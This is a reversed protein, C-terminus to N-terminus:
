THVENEDDLVDMEAARKVAHKLIMTDEAKQQEKLMKRSLIQQNRSAVCAEWDAKRQAEQAAFNDETKKELEAVDKSLKLDESKKISALHQATREIIKNVMAQKEAAKKEEFSKRDADIRQKEKAYAILKDDMEEDLQRNRAKIAKQEENMLMYEYALDKAAKRRAEEAAAMDSKTQKALARVREGEAIEALRERRAREKAQSLQFDQSAKREQMKRRVEEKEAATRKDSSAMLQNEMELWEAEQQKLLEKEAKKMRLQVDREAMVSSLLLSQHFGMVRDNGAYLTANAHDIIQRRESERAAVEQDDIIQQRREKAALREVRDIQKKERLAEITNGWAMARERSRERLEHLRKEQPNERKVPGSAIHAIYSFDNLNLVTANPPLGGIAPMTVPQSRSMPPTANRAVDNNLKAQYRLASSRTHRMTTKPLVIAESM